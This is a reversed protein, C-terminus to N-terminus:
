LEPPHVLHQERMLVGELLLVQEVIGMREPQIQRAEALLQCLADVRLPDTVIKTTPHPAAHVPRRREEDVARAVISAPRVRVLEHSRQALRRPQPRDTRSSPAPSRSASEYVTLRPSYQRM